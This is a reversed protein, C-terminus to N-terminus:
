QVRKTPFRDRIYQAFFRGKSAANMLGMFHTLPVNNYQYIRGQKFEIELIKFEEDYGVSRLNSSNVPERIM